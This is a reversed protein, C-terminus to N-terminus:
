SLMQTAFQGPTVGVMKKFSRTLHSQSSFGVAYAVDSLSQQALILSQARRIRVDQLYAHPPMGVAAHFVRLLYYPSLAVLDALQNLSIPEAYHAEIYDRVQQIAQKENPLTLFEASVVDAYRGILAAMTAMFQSECELPSTAVKLADHLVLLRRVMDADDVRVDRFYPVVSRQGTMEYWISQLHATTPYLSRLLFGQESAAEGTHVDGPNILILGGAPTVYKAGKHTFSQVGREIVSIVYHEHSHRPYAFDVYYAQLLSMDVLPNHWFKRPESVQTISQATM